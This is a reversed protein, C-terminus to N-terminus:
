NQVCVSCSASLTEKENIVDTILQLNDEDIYTVSRKVPLGEDDKLYGGAILLTIFHPTSYRADRELADATYSRDLRIAMKMQEFNMIYDTDWVSGDDEKKEYRIAITDLKRHEEIALWLSDSGYKFIMSETGTSIQFSMIPM